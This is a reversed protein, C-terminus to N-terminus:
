MKLSIYDQVRDHNPYVCLLGQLVPQRTKPFTTLIASGGIMQRLPSLGLLLRNWFVKSRPKPACDMVQKGQLRTKRIAYGRLNINLTMQWGQGCVLKYLSSHGLDAPQCHHMLRPNAM